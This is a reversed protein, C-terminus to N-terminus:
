LQMKVNRKKIDKIKGNLKMVMYKIDVKNLIIYIFYLEKLKM